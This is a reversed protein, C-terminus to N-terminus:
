HEEWVPGFQYDYRVGFVNLRNISTVRLLGDQVPAGFLVVNRSSSNQTLFRMATPSLFGSLSKGAIHQALAQSMYYHDENPLTLFHLTNWIEENTRAEQHGLDYLTLPSTTELTALVVVNHAVEEPTLKLEMLCTEVDLAGYFTRTANANFRGSCKISAPPSDFESERLPQKPARRARYIKTGPALVLRPVAVLLEDLQEGVSRSPYEVMGESIMPSPPSLSHQIEDIRSRYHTTTHRGGYNTLLHQTLEVISRYDKATNPEFTVPRSPRSAVPILCFHDAAYIARRSGRCFFEEFLQSLADLTLKLAEESACRPCAGRAIVGFRQATLRVGENFFCNVCALFKQEM